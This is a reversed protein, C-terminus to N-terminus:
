ILILRLFKIYDSLDSAKIWSIVGKEGKEIKALIAWKSEFHPLIM